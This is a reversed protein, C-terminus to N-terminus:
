SPWESAMSLRMAAATSRRTSIRNRGRRRRRCGAYAFQSILKCLRDFDGRVLAAKKARSWGKLQRERQVASTLDNLSEVYVLRPAVHDHTHKSGLGLRHKRLREHLDRTQGVYYTGDASQLIYVWFLGPYPDPCAISPHPDPMPPMQPPGIPNCSCSGNPDALGRNALGAASSRRLRFGKSMSLANSAARAIFQGAMLL